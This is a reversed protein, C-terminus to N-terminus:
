LTRSIDVPISQSLPCLKIFDIIKESVRHSVSNLCITVAWLCNQRVYLTFM